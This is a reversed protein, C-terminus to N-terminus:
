FLPRVRFYYSLFIIALLILTGIIFIAPMLCALASKGKSINHLKAIGIIMLVFSYIISLFGIFPILVLIMFPIMSYAYAKYTEAYTGQGKFAMVILHIIGSYAFSLALSFLFTGFIFAPGLLGFYGMYGYRQPLFFRSFFSMGYNIVSVSFSLIVFTLLANKIGKEAKVSEFFVKPNSFLYKLKDWFDFKDGVDRAPNSPSEKNIISFAEEIDKKKYGKKTLHYMLQKETYGKSETNNIWDILEQRVM